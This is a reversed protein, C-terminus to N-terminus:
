LNISSVSNREWIARLQEASLLDTRNAWIGRAKRLLDLKHNEESPNYNLIALNAIESEKKGLKNSLSTLRNYASKSINVQPQNM